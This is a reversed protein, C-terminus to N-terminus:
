QFAYHHYKLRSVLPDRQFSPFIFRNVRYNLFYKSHVEVDEDVLEALM